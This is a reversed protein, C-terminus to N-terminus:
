WWSSADEPCRYIAFGVTIGVTCESLFPVAPRAYLLIREIIPRHNHHQHYRPNCESCYFRQTGILIAAVFSQM